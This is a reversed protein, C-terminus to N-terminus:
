WIIRCFKLFLFVRSFFYRCVKNFCFYWIQKQFYGSQFLPSSKEPIEFVRALTNEFLGIGRLEQVKKRGSEATKRKVNSPSKATGSLVNDVNNYCFNKELEFKNGFGM